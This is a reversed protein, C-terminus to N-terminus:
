AIEFLKNGAKVDDWIEQVIPHFESGEYRKIMLDRIERSLDSDKANRPGQDYFLINTAAIRVYDTITMKESVSMAHEFLYRGPHIVGRLALLVGAWFFDPVRKSTLMYRSTKFSPNSEFQVNDFRTGLLPKGWLVDTITKTRDGFFGYEARFKGGSQMTIKAIMDRSTALSIANGPTECAHAIIQEIVDDTLNPHYWLVFLSLKFAFAYDGCYELAEPDVLGDFFLKKHHKIYAGRFETRAILKLNHQIFRWEKKRNIVFEKDLSQWDDPNWYIKQSQKNM